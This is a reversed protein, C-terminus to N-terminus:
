LLGNQSICLGVVLRIPSATPPTASVVTQALYVATLRHCVLRLKPRHEGGFSSYGQM